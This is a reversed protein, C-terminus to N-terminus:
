IEKGYLESFIEKIKNLYGNSLEIWNVHDLKCYILGSLYLM